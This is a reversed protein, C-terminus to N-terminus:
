HKLEWWRDVDAPSHDDTAFHSDLQTIIRFLRDAAPSTAKAMTVGDGIAKV